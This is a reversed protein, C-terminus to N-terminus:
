LNRCARKVLLATERTPSERSWRQCLDRVWGPHSKGADNLWNAVSDRVYKAPDSRLPELLAAGRQPAMKLEAIHACWVGRPRTVESAFRRINDSSEHVWPQLRDLAEDLSAAIAPRVAMWAWERVGFHPDDALPRIRALRQTLTQEPLAALAFAAWGRVTDSPHQCFPKLGQLGFREALIQGAVKMRTTIGETPVLRAIEAPPVIPVACTMLWQFDVALGEALTASEVTGNSLAQLIDLPIDSRRSAGVRHVLPPPPSQGPHSRSRGTM